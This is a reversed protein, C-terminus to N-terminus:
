AKAVHDFLSGGSAYEMVIGLHTDTLICRGNRLLDRKLTHRLSALSTLTVASLSLLQHHM